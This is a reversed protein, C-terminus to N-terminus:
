PRNSVGYAHVSSAQPGDKGEEESFRVEAGVRLTDFPDHLVSNKHFYIERGDDARIFGHGKDLFLREIIGHPQSPPQKPEEQRELVRDSLQRRLARFVDKLAVYADEHAHDAPPNRSASLHVGGPLELAVRFAYLGGQRHHDGPGEVFVNCSTIRGYRKELGAVEREIRQRVFDSPEMQEFAIHLATEM